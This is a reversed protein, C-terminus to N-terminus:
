LATPTQTTRQQCAFARHKWPRRQWLRISRITLLVADSVGTFMQFKFKMSLIRNEPVEAKL